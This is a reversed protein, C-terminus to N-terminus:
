RGQPFERRWGKAIKDLLDAQESATVEFLDRNDYVVRYRDPTSTARVTVWEITGWPQISVLGTTIPM